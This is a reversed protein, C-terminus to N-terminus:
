YEMDRIRAEYNMFFISLEVAKRFEIKFYKELNVDKHYIQLKKKHM